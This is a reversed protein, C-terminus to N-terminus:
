FLGTRRLRMAFSVARELTAGLLGIRAEGQELLARVEESDGRGCCMVRVPTRKLFGAMLRPLLSQAPVTSTGISMTERSKNERM